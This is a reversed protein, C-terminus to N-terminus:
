SIFGTSSSLNELEPYLQYKNAISLCLCVHHSLHTQKMFILASHIKIHDPPTALTSGTRVGIVSLTKEITELGILLSSNLDNEIM